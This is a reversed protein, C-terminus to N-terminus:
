GFSKWSERPAAYPSFLPPHSCPGCTMVNPKKNVARPLPKTLFPIQVLSKFMDEPLQLLSPFISGRIAAWVWKGPLPMCLWTVRSDCKFWTDHSAHMYHAILPFLSTQLVSGTKQIPYWPSCDSHEGQFQQKTNNGASVRHWISSNIFASTVHREVFIRTGVVYHPM